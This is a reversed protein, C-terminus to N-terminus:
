MATVRPDDINLSFAAEGGDVNVQPLSLRIPSPVVAIDRYKAGGRLCLIRKLRRGAVSPPGSRMALGIPGPWATCNWGPQSVTM